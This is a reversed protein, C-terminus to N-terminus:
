VKNKRGGYCENGIEFFGSSAKLISKENTIKTLKTALGTFLVRNVEHSKIEQQFPHWVNGNKFLLAEGKLKIKSKEFSWSTPKQITPRHTYFYGKFKNDMLFTGKLANTRRETLVISIAPVEESILICNIPQILEAILFYM